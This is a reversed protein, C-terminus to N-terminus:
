EGGKQSLSEVLEMLDNVSVGGSIVAQLIDVGTVGEAEDKLAKEVLKSIKGAYNAPKQEISVNNEAWTWLNNNENELFTDIKTVFKDWVKAKKKQFVITEGADIKAGNDTFPIFERMFLGTVKRNQSTLTFKGDEGKGLLTNVIRVDETECVFLLVERSLEGLEHRTINEAYSIKALRESLTEFTIQKINM